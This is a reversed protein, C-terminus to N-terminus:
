RNFQYLQKTYHIASSEWDFRQTKALQKMQSWKETGIESVAMSFRSLFQQAQEELTDGNFVYGTENNVVTDKLGGVGHVLCIQGERMSLLQSIGCPEFSSPMIFLDGAKYLYETVGEHYGNLFIFNSHNAAICLFEKAIDRDGSGLLVFLGNPRLTKFRNLMIELVTENNIKQRLILVKQDTLRGISTLLCSPTIKNSIDRWRSNLRIFAVQDWSSVTESSAQWSVLANEMQSFIQEFKVQENDHTDDALDKVSKDALGPYFCGNLIGLLEQNDRKRVLDGELGEGGFSGFQHNSPQLVEEAYSPSVLHVRDCLNIGVRMPNICHPYRPDIISAFQQPALSALLDPYWAELSSPDHRLPRTGQLALNHITFVCDISKLDSYKHDYARLLAFLGSHWDHLHFLDPLPITQEVLAVAVSQCFLAFKSADEAFPRASCGSSYINHARGDSSMFSDHDLFYINAGPVDPHESRYLGVRYENGAFPVHLDSLWNAGASSILFGYSPMIVDAIVEQSQLAPPLDRIVDAMGGVKGGKISGNEAALM